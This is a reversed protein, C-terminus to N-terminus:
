IRETVSTAGIDGNKHTHVSARNPITKRLTLGTYAFLPKSEFAYLIPCYGVNNNM